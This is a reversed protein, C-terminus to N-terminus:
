PSSFYKFYFLRTTKIVIQIFANQFLQKQSKHVSCPRNLLASPKSVEKESKTQQALFGCVSFSVLM